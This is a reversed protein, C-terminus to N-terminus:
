EWKKSGGFESERKARHSRCVSLVRRVEARAIGGLEQADKSTSNNCQRKYEEKSSQKALIVPAGFVRDQTISENATRCVKSNIATSHQQHSNGGFISFCPFNNTFAMAVESFCIKDRRRREEGAYKSKCYVVFARRNSARTLDDLAYLSVGVRYM